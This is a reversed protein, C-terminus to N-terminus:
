AVVPLEADDVAAAAARGEGAAVAIGPGAPLGTGAVGRLPVDEDRLLGDGRERRGELSAGPLREGLPQELAEGGGLGRAAVAAALLGRGDEHDLLVAAVGAEGVDDDVQADVVVWM